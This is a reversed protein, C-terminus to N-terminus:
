CLDNHLDRTYPIHWWSPLVLLLTMYQGVFVLQTCTLIDCPIDLVRSVALSASRMNYLWEM